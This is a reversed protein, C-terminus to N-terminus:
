SVSIIADPSYATTRGTAANRLQAHFAYTGAGQSPSFTASTATVANKWSTWNKWGTTGAPRFRYQVNFVYGTLARTSWSVTFTTGARGSTPSVVVPVQVSGTIADSKATSKYTFIGAAPFNFRCSGSSKLGSDFWPAGGAGLGASDTVSHVKNGLFSWNVDAGPQVTLNQPTYAKDSVTVVRNVPRASNWHSATASLVTLQIYSQANITAYRRGAVCPSGDPLAQGSTPCDPVLIPTGTGEARYIESSALTTADLSAGAPPTITFVLQLPSTATAAPASINVQVTGFL